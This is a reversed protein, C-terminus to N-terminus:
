GNLLVDWLVVCTCRGRCDPLLGYLMRYALDYAAMSWLVADEREAYWGVLRRLRGRIGMPSTARWRARRAEDPWELDSLRTVVIEGEEPGEPMRAEREGYGYWWVNACFAPGAGDDRVMEVELRLLHLRPERAVLEEWGLTEVM